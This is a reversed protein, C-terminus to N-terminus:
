WVESELVNESAGVADRHHRAAMAQAAAPADGAVRAGGDLVRPETRLRHSLGPGPRAGLRAPADGAGHRRRGYKHSIRRGGSPGVQLLTRLRRFYGGPLQVCQVRRPRGPVRALVRGGSVARDMLEAPGGRDRTWRERSVR